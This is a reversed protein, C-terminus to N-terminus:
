QQKTGDVAIRCLDRESEYESQSQSPNIVAASAEDGADQHVEDVVSSGDYEKKIGIIGIGGHLLSESCGIGDTDSRCAYHKGKGTDINEAFLQKRM